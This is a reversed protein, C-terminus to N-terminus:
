QAWPPPGALVSQRAAHYRGPVGNMPAPALTWTSQLGPALQSASPVAVSPTHVNRTAIHRLLTSGVRCHWGPGRALKLSMFGSGDDGPSLRESEAFASAMRSAIVESGTPAVIAASEARRNLGASAVVLMHVPRKSTCTGSRACAFPVDLLPVMLNRECTFVSGAGPVRLLTM